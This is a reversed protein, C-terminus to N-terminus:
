NANAEVYDFFIVCTKARCFLVDMQVHVNKVILCNTHWSHKM